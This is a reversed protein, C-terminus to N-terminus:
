GAAREGGEELDLVRDILLLHSRDVLSPGDEVPDDGLSHLGGAVLANVNLSDIGPWVECTVLLASGGRPEVPDIHTVLDVAEVGVRRALLLEGAEELGLRLSRNWARGSGLHATHLHRRLRGPWPASRSILDYLGSFPM